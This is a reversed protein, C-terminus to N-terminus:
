LVEETELLLNEAHRMDSLLYDEEYHCFCVSEQRCRKIRTSGAPPSIVWCDSLENKTIGHSSCFPITKNKRGGADTNEAAHNVRVSEM